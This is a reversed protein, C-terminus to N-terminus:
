DDALMETADAVDEESGLASLMIIPLDSYSEDGKLRHLVENGDVHPM